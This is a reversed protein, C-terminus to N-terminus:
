KGLVKRSLNTWFGPEKSPDVITPKLTLDTGHEGVPLRKNDWVVTKAEPNYFPPIVNEARFVTWMWDPINDVTRPFAILDLSLTMADAPRDPITAESDPRLLEGDFVELRGDADPYLYVKCSTWTGVGPIYSAIRVEDLWGDMSQHAFDVSFARVGWTANRKVDEFRRSWAKHLVSTSVVEEAGFGLGGTQFTETRLTRLGPRVLTELTHESIMM